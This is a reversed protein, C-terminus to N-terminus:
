SRYWLPIEATLIGYKNDAENSYAPFKNLRVGEGIRQLKYNLEDMCMEIDDPAFEYLTASYPLVKEVVLWYYSDVKEMLGGEIAGKIQLCAQFPYDLNAMQRSFGRPSGDITSKVDVIIGSKEKSIDPRTKLNLGSKEDTWFVSTQYETNKVLSQIIRDEYCSSLMVKITEYSEDGELAIIYKSDNNEYFANKVDKYAKTSRVSKTEPRETMIMKVIQSEDWIAVEDVFREPEILALEFANGFDFHSVRGEKDYKGDIYAKFEKLSNKGHKLSSSSYHTKNAHYDDISLETYIGNDM